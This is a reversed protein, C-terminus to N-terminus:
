GTHITIKCLTGSTYMHLGIVERVEFLHHEPINIINTRRSEKHAPRDNQLSYPFKVLNFVSILVISPVHLASPRLLFDQGGSKMYEM